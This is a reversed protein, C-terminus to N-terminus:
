RQGGGRAHRRLHLVMSVILANVGVIMGVVVAIVGLHNDGAWYLAAAGLLIVLSLLAWRLGLGRARDDSDAGISAAIALAPLASLAVALPVLINM